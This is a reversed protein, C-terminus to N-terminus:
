ERAPPRLSARAVPGLRVPPSQPRQGRAPARRRAPPRPARRGPARADLHGEPFRALLAGHGPFDRTWAATSTLAAATRGDDVLVTAGPALRDHLVPVAPWRSWRTLQPPGDVVLVDIPADAARATIGTDYWPVARQKLGCPRLPAVVIEVRDGLGAQGVLRRIRQAYAPDHELSVLRGRGARELMAGIVLTSAGAGCEVVLDAAQEVRRAILGAFDAEIAWGGFLPAAAGLAAALSAADAANRAERDRRNDGRVRSGVAACVALGVALRRVPPLQQATLVAGLGAVGAMAGANRELEVVARSLRGRATRSTADHQEPAAGASM